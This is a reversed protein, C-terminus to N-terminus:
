TPQTRSAVSPHNSGPGLCLSGPSSSSPIYVQGPACVQPARVSGRDWGVWNGWCSTQTGHWEERGM